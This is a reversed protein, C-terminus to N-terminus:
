PLEEPKPMRTMSAKEPDYAGFKQFNLRAQALSFMGNPGGWVNHAEDEGHGDDEWFCVPCIEYCAREGITLNGCCACPLFETM